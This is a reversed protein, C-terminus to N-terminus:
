SQPISLVLTPSNRSGVTKLGHSQDFPLAEYCCGGEGFVRVEFAVVDWVGEGEDTVGGWTVGGRREQGRVM